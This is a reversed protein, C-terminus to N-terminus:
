KLYYNVTGESRKKAAPKMPKEEMAQDTSTEPPLPPSIQEPSTSEASTTEAAPSDIEKVSPKEEWLMSEPPSKEAVHRGSTSPQLMQALINTPAPSPCPSPTGSTSRALGALSDKKPKNPRSRRLFSKQQVIHLSVSM